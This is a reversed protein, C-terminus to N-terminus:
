KLKSYLCIKEKLREMKKVKYKRTILGVLTQRVVM